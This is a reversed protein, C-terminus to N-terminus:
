NSLLIITLPPFCEFSKSDYSLALDQINLTEQGQQL